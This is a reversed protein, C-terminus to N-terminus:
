FISQYISQATKPSFEGTALGQRQAFVKAEDIMTKLEPNERAECAEQVYAFSKERSFLTSPQLYQKMMPKDKWQYAKWLIMDKIDEFNGVKKFLKLVLKINNTGNMRGKGDPDSAFKRGTLENLFRLVEIAESMFRVSGKKEAVKKPTEFNPKKLPVDVSFLQMQEKDSNPYNVDDDPINKGSQITYNREKKEEELEILEKPEKLEEPSQILLPQLDFVQSSARQECTNKQRKSRLTNQLAKKFLTPSGKIRDNLLSILPVSDVRKLAHIMGTQVKPSTSYNEKIWSPMFYENTKEDFAIVFPFQKCFALFANKLATENIGILKAATAMDLPHIGCMSTTPCTNLYDYILKQEPSFSRHIDDNWKEVNTKRFKM